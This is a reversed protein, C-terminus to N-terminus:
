CDATGLCDVLVLYLNLELLHSIWCVDMKIQEDDPFGDFCDFV